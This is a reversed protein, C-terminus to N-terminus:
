LNQRLARISRQLQSDISASIEAIKTGLPKIEDIIAALEKQKATFGATDNQKHLEALERIRSEAVIMKQLLTASVEALQVPKSVHQLTNAAEKWANALAIIQDYNGADKLSLAQLSRAIKGQFDIYEAAQKLSQSTNKLESVITTQRRAEADIGIRLGAINPLAPASDSKQSLTTSLNSLVAGVAASDGVDKAQKVQAPAADLAKKIDSRFASYQARYGANQLAAWTFLLAAVGLWIALAVLVRRTRNPRRPPAATIIM